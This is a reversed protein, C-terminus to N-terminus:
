RTVLRSARSIGKKKVENKEAEELIRKQERKMFYGELGGELFKLGLAIIGKIGLGVFPLEIHEEIVPSLVHEESIFLVIALTLLVTSAKKSVRAQTLEEITNQLEVNKQKIEENQHKIKQNAQDLKKQLRDSVKTIVKSQDLLEKYYLAFSFADELFIEERKVKELYDSLIKQEEHYLEKM